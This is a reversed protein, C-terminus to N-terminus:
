PSRRKWSRATASWRCTRRVSVVLACRKRGADWVTDKSSRERGPTSRSGGATDAIGADRESQPLAMWEDELAYFTLMYRM